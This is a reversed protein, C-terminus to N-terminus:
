LQDKKKPMTSVCPAKHDRWRSGAVERNVDYGGDSPQRAFLWQSNEGLELRPPARYILLKIEKM